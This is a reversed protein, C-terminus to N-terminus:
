QEVMGGVANRYFSPEIPLDARSRSFPTLLVFENRRCRSHVSSRGALSRGRLLIVALGGGVRSSEVIKGIVDRRKAISQWAAIVRSGCPSADLQRWTSAIRLLHLLELFPFPNV